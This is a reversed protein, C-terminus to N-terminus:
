KAVPKKRRRAMFGLMGLAPVFMALTGPEPVDGTAAATVSGSLNRWPSCNMCEWSSPTNIAHTGGTTLADVFSFTIYRHGDGPMISFSNPGFGNFYLGANTTDYTFAGLTGASTSIKFDTWTQAGADITFFGTAATGDTFTANTLEWKVSAAQAAIALVLGAVGILSKSLFNGKM